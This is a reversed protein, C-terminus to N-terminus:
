EITNDLKLKSYAVSKSKVKTGDAKSGFDGKLVVGTKNKKDVEGTYTKGDSDEFSVKDWLDVKRALEKNKELKMEKKKNAAEKRLEDLQEPTLGKFIEDYDM